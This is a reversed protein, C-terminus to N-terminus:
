HGDIIDINNGFIIPIMQKFGVINQKNKSCEIRIYLIIFENGNFIHDVRNGSNLSYQRLKQFGIFKILKFIIQYPIEGQLIQDTKYCNKFRALQNVEYNFSGAQNLFFQANGELIFRQDADIYMNAAQHFSKDCFFFNIRMQVDSIKFLMM